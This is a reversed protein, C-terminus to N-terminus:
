GVEVLERSLLAHFPDILAGQAQHGLPNGAL